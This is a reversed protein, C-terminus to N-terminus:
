NGQEPPHKAGHALEAKVADLARQIEEVQESLKAIREDKRASERQEAELDQQLHTITNLLARRETDFSKELAAMQREIVTLRSGDVEVDVTQSAVAGKAKTVKRERWYAVFAGAGGASFISSIIPAVFDNTTM